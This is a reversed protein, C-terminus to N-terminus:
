EFENVNEITPCRLEHQGEFRFHVVKVSDGKNIRCNMRPQCLVTCHFIGKEYQDIRVPVYELQFPPMRFPVRIVDPYGAVRFKKLWELEPFKDIILSDKKEEPNDDCSISSLPTKKLNYSDSEENYTIDIAYHDM